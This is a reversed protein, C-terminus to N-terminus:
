EASKDRDHIASLGKLTLQKDYRDIIKLNGDFLCYTGGTALVMADSGVEEKMKFIINEVLGIYGNYIGSQMASVTDQGIVKEPPTLEILPLKSSNKYLAEASINVGPAIVGGLFEGSKTVYDFTTATGFDVIIVDGDTIQRAACANVLRDSGVAARNNVRLTLGYDTRANVFTPTVGFMKKTLREFAQDLEPVVSSIIVDSIDGCDVGKKCCLVQSIKNRYGDTDLSKNTDFRFDAIIEADKVIGMYISSNGIDVALLM